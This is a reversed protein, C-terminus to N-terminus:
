NFFDETIQNFTFDTPDKGCISILFDYKKFTHVSNKINEKLVSTKSFSAGIGSGLQKFYAEKANWIEYFAYEPSDSNEIYLKEDPCFFKKAVKFNPVSIKEIDIGVPSESFAVTVANNSHSINFHLEPFDKLYPKGSPTREILIADPTSNLKKAAVTKVIAEGLLSSFFKMEPMSSKKKFREDGFSFVTRLSEVSFEQPILFFYVSIM